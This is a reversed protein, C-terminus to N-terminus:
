IRQPACFAKARRCWIILTSRRCNHPPMLKTSCPSSLGGCLAGEPIRQYQTRVIVDSHFLTHPYDGISSDDVPNEAVPPWVLVPGPLEKQANLWVDRRKPHPRVLISADRLRADDAARVAAIWRACSNRNRNSRQNLTASAVYTILPKEAPLGLKALFEARPVAPQFAFVNDFGPAGTVKIREPGIGHFRKAEDVQVDNWVTILDPPDRLWAKSSLNDWSNVVLATKFGLRRATRLHQFQSLGLDILPSFVVVDPNLKTLYKAMHPDSPSYREIWRLFGGAARAFGPSQFMKHESIQAAAAPRARAALADKGEFRGSRFHFFDITRAIVLDLVSWGDHGRDIEQYALRGNSGAIM